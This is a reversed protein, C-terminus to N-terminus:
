LAYLGFGAGQQSVELSFSSIDHQSGFFFVLKNEEFDKKHDTVIKTIIIHLKVNYLFIFSLEFLVAEWNQFQLIM